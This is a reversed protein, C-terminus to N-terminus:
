TAEVVSKVLIERLAGIALPRFDVPSKLVTAPSADLDCMCILHANTYHATTGPSAEPGRELLSLSHSLTGSM